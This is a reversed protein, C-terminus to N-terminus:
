VNAEYDDETEIKDVFDICGDLNYNEFHAAKPCTSQKACDNCSQVTTM